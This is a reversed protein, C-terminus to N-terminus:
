GTQGDDKTDIIGLWALVEDTHEGLGPPRRALLPTQGDFRLPPVVQTSSGGSDALRQVPALDLQAALEFAEALDNVPSVPVGAVDIEELWDAAPRRVLQAELERRLAERHAVRAANTAYRDDDALDPRGLVKCLVVFQDDTGCAVAISRDATQLLEYPAISPHANGLRRPLVGASLYASGQNALSSLLSSLLNVEIHTGRGTRAVERVASLIGIIAHLGALVDVLAVGVKTPRGDEDGTFSMLGGAAQVIFDYGPRGAGKGSGFGSISCYVVGPNEASVEGYSLGFRSMVGPRFNEVVVDARRVLRRAAERGEETTLDLAVSRKSRNVALYYTANGEHFPPGWSRTDDGSGPREVKIVDAGLDGLFMTATPGSLVRTFDAVVLGDLPGSM